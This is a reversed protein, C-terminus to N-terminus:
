NGAVGMAAKVAHSVFGFSDPAGAFRALSLGFAEAQPFRDQCSSRGPMPKLTGTM